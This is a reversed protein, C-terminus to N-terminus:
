CLIAVDTALSPLDKAFVRENEGRTSLESLIRKLM